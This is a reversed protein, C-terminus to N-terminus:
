PPLTSPPPRTSDTTAVRVLRRIGHRLTPTNFNILLGVELGTLRLYTLVQAEHIPMLEAVCKLEVLLQGEVVLDIRYGCELRVGKYEIPLTRQREFGIGLLRLECCLCEEYASELLGPGLWRHVEICAGLVRQSLGWFKGARRGAEAGGQAM